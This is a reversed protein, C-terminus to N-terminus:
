VRCECRRVEGEGEGRIPDQFFVEGLVERVGKWIKEIQETELGKSEWSLSISLKGKLTYGFLLSAGRRQRSGTTLAQLDISPFQAHQYMFDLNGLLSLGLFPSNSPTAPAAAIVPKVTQEPTPPATLPLAVAPRAPSGAMSSDSDSDSDIDKEAAEEEMAWEAAASSTSALATSRKIAATAVAAEADDIKAWHIARDRREDSEVLSKGVLFKSKVAQLTQAKVSKSRHWFTRNVDSALLFSPLTINYYGLALHFYSGPTVTPRLSNRLSLASYFLMPEKENLGQKSRIWAINVAAFLFHAVGLGGQAKSIKVIRDTDEKSFALTSVITKIAEEEPPANKPFPARPLVQSGISRSVSNRFAVKDVVKKLTQKAQSDVEAPILREEASVPFPTQMRRDQMETNLLNILEETSLAGGIVCYFENMFTHLAMGDGVYHTTCLIVEFQSPQGPALGSNDSAVTLQALRSASLQRPGNLYTAVLDINSKEFFSVKQSARVIAEDVTSPADYCFSYTEQSTKRVASDLLPHRGTLIAWIVVIRQYDFRHPEFTALRHHLYMDNVGTARSPLYYSLENSSLARSVADTTEYSMALSEASFISFINNLSGDDHM